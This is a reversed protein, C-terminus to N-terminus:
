LHEVTLIDGRGAHLSLDNTFELSQFGFRDIRKGVKVSPNGKEDIAHAHVNYYGNDNLHRAVGLPISYVEGDIMHYHEVPDNKYGRYSFKLEGGPVEYFMFKGRVIKRNALREQEMKKAVEDKEAKTLVKRTAYSAGTMAIM